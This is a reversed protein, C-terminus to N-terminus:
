SLDGIVRGQRAVDGQFGGGIGAGETHELQLQGIPREDEVVALNREVFRRGEILALHHHHFGGKGQLSTGDPVGGLGNGGLGAGAPKKM